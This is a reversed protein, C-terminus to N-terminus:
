LRRDKCRQTNRGAVAATDLNVTYRQQYNKTLEISEFCGTMGPYHWKNLSDPIGGIYINSDASMVGTLGPYIQSQKREEVNLEIQKNQYIRVAIVHREGDSVDVLDERMTIPGDGLDLELVARANELRLLVYDGRDGANTEKQYLLVGDSSTTVVAVGFEVPYRDYRLNDAALEIYGNGDFGVSHHLQLKIHCNQGGFGLPCDCTYNFRDQRHTAPRCTGHICPNPSCPSRAARNECYTGSYGPPCQCSSAGPSCRGGNMCRSCIGLDESNEPEDPIDGRDYSSCEQVNASIISANVINVANDQVLVDKICGSFGGMVEVNRNLVINSDDVGGVYMPTKLHLEGLQNPQPIINSVTESNITLRVTPGSRTLTVDTWENPRLLRQSALIAPLYSDGTQYRFELRQDKVALSTFGGHGQESEACYMIIGDTVPSMAKIKLSMYLSRSSPPAPIALYASGTFAPYEISQQRECNHGAHTIPCSCKYTGGVETCKGPGCIHPRCGEGTHDCNQGAYGAPCLCVYGRENRAEQCVGGHLCLNPSCSDCETVEYKYSNAMIDQEQKGLILMGVCGTFGPTSALAAPLQINDPVGGIYLPNNLDMVALQTPIVTTFPGADDVNMSVKTDMRSLRVTHWTNLQLPRDGMVTIPGSGADLVMEPQGSYLRLAVFTGTRGNDFLILGDSDTPKFSIEIDFQTYADPLNPLALYSFRNFQPVVGTVKLVVRGETVTRGNNVRCIYTGADTESVPNIYFNAENARAGPVLPAYERRWEVTAGPELNPCPLYTPQGIRASFTTDRIAPYQPGVPAPQIELNFDDSSTRQYQDTGTCRYTGADSEAVSNLILSSGEGFRRQDVHQRTGLREWTAVVDPGATRCLVEVNDGVRFQRNPQSITVLAQEEVAPGAGTNGTYPPYDSLTNSMQTNTLCIEDSHDECDNRGDCILENDVCSSGDTCRFQTESCKEIGEIQLNIYNSIINRGYEDKITCDYRGTDSIKAPNIYISGDNLVRTYRPLPRGDKTWSIRLRQTQVSADCRFRVQQGVRAVQENDHSVSAVGESESVIVQAVGSAEAVVNKATCKYFGEDEVEIRRFILTSGRKEVRRSFPKNVPDWSVERIHDGEVVCEVTPSQGPSVTQSAPQLTVRPPRVVELTFYASRLVYQTRRDVESCEYEGSDEKTANRIILQNNNLQANRQLPRRDRRSWMLDHDYDGTYNCWLNTDQGEAAYQPESIPQQDPNYTEQEDFGSGSDDEGNYFGADGRYVEVTFPEDVSQDLSTATCIYDKNDADSAAALRLSAVLPTPPVIVRGRGTQDRLHISVMPEPYGNARCKIEVPEGLRVGILRDPTITIEPPSWVKLTATATDNGAKNGANCIYEGDDNVDIKSFRIVEAPGVQADASLARGKSRSWVIEPRPEGELVHCRLEFQSGIRARVDQQPWIQVRPRIRTEIDVTVYQSAVPNGNVIASCVYFGRDSEQANAITLTNGRQSTSPGFQGEHKSWVIRPLPNGTATCHVVGSEGTPIRLENVDLEVGPSELPSQTGVPIVKVVVAMSEAQGSTTKCMYVGQNELRAVDIYLVGNLSQVNSEFENGDQRVWKISGPPINATGTCVVNTSQGEVVNSASPKITLRERSPRSPLPRVIISAIRDDTGVNNSAVCRYDGSDEERASDIILLSEILQVTAPLPQGNGRQWEITPAPNGDTICNLEVREGEYLEQVSPQISVTPSAMPNTGVTLTATAQGATVGDHTQCIYTGSDSVQVRTITLTGTQDDIMYRGQPLYGNKKSWSVPLLGPRYFSRAQCTFNVYSGVNQIKITPSSITVTVSSQPPPPRSTTVVSEGLPSCDSASNPDPCDCMVQDYSDVHCGYGNCSCQQCRGNLQYYGPSCSECSRGSYGAPCRCSEIGKAVNPRREESAKDMAVIAISTSTLKERQLDALTARVLVRKLNKLVSMFVNRSAPVRTNLVYWNKELLPVQNFLVEGSQFSRPNTWYVSDEDGVLVVDTGPNNYVPYPNDVEFRQSFSLNGGYSLLMNGPLTLLPLSWFLEEDPPFSFSYTLESEAPNPVFHDNLVKQAALDMIRYNNEGVMPAPVQDWYLNTVESCDTTVGSCYCQICGEPNEISLGFSGPRCRNCSEGTVSPKCHCNGRDDCGPYGVTGRSDCNCNDPSPTPYRTSDPVCNNKYDRIYGPVCDECNPGTTYAPCTLCEGTEPDCISGGQCNCRVCRRLYLAEQSRTYGPACDECSTGLYGEPCVCQEVEAALPGNGNEDAMDISSSVLSAIQYSTSYTAKVLIAKVDALALLFQQRPITTGDARQWGKELFPVTADLVGNSTPDFNGFYHFTQRNQSILQVDPANNSDASVPVNRLVYRLYGGYSTVKDLTFSRPLSWYYINNRSRDVDNLLLEGSVIQPRASAEVPTDYRGAGDSGLPASQYVSVEDVVEPTNFTVSTTNRRLNSSTCQKTLGSCFCKACGHKYTESLHFSGEKCQDCFRGEVNQKCECEDPMRSHLTGVANCSSTVKRRCYDGPALPNGEYGESCYECRDGEYGPACDCIVQGRPGLSCTRAFQNGRDTLPCPCPQCGAGSSPNGYMGAPCERPAERVCNGLWLGSSERVYGSSCKECSLGDYGPPCSCEEVLNAAGLGSNFSQASEMSFETINVGVSNVSARLLIMEVNDLAMMVDERTALELGNPTAKQWAGQALRVEVRTARPDSRGRHYILTEYKGQIIVDPMRSDYGTNPRASQPTLTYRIYGGYSTLQNGNYSEPLTLYPFSDTSTPYGQVQLKTVTAGNRLPQFYYQDIPNNTRRIGGNPEQQVGVLRTGGEGLPTPMNYIFLDASKCQTSEGFCFCRICESPSRAESNFYGSPCISTRDVNVIADLAGFATARNNVAECSYAGSDEPQMNPCSLVGTGNISTSTCKAPVHGWNLRWNIFPVPIGVAECELRLSEGPNLQVHSPQPLKRITINICIEDGGDSCDPHNDCHFSKPICQNDSCRFESQSCAEGPRAPSCGREDSGDGCDDESDCIWSKLVCRRNDCRFQNPECLGNEHCTEEDSQDSCDFKGDCVSSKPICQGNACTAENPQCGVFQPRVTTTPNEVTLTVRIESGPSGEYSYARCIYVGSDSPSVKTMELRGNVDTSGPKLPRGGERIWRVPARLPGEDRCQFVVDGGSQYKAYRVAQATPYTKLDLAAPSNPPCDLEDSDDRPCDRHGDCRRYAPICPGNECRFQNRDCGGSSEINTTPEYPRQPYEPRPPYNPRQTYNPRPPYAPRGYESRPNYEPRPPYEPAPRFTTTYEPPPKWTTTTAFQDFSPAPTICNEEDSYDTCDRVGNCFQNELICQGSRCQKENEKCRCNEEDSGDACDPNRDCYFDVDICFGNNCQFQTDTCKESPIMIKECGEEDSEDECDPLGNCRVNKHVCEGSKCRFNDPGECNNCFYEDSGDSCDQEGNCIQSPVLCNGDCEHECPEPSPCDLEDEGSDCDAVDDCHVACRVQSQPACTFQDVPCQQPGCNLEDEGGPCDRKANCRLAINLCSGDRCQFQDRKCGPCNREDSGDTCEATGNCQADALVCQGSSCKYEYAMCLTGYKCGREDSRDQCDHTRDCHKSAPICYGNDCKFDGEGCPCNVEDSYDGPPCDYNRNCRQSQLIYTGNKCMFYEHPTLPPLAAPCNIEDSGDNCHEVGDCRKREEICVNSDRCQFDGHKCDCGVEDEHDPCDVVSNCRSSGPICKGNNCRFDNAGCTEIPPCNQEDLGDDCDNHGDCRKTVSVCRTNDCTLEETHCEPNSSEDTDVASRPRETEPLPLNEEGRPIENISDDSPCGAEDAGDSCDKVGNCRTYGPHCAGGDCRVWDDPCSENSAPDVNTASFDAESVVVGELSRRNHIHDQLIRAIKDMDYYGTTVIDLTVKCSFDDTARSQIRVLSARQTGSIERNRGQEEYIKNVANALSKSFNQFQPSDRNSYEEQYPQMAVFTVRLTKEKPESTDVPVHAGSGDGTEDDFPVVGGAPDDTSTDETDEPEPTTSSSSSFINFFDFQRKIRSLHGALGSEHEKVELFENSADEEGEWYLDESTVKTVLSASILLLAALPAGGARM